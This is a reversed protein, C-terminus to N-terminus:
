GRRRVDSARRKAIRPASPLAPTCETANSPAADRFLVAHTHEDTHEASNSSDLGYPNVATMNIVGTAELADM